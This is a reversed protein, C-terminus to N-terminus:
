KIKGPFSGKRGVDDGAAKGALSFLMNQGAFTIPVFCVIWFVAEPVSCIGPHSYVLGLVQLVAFGVALVARVPVSFFVEELFLARKWLSYLGFLLALPLIGMTYVSGQAYLLLFIRVACVLALFASIGALAFERASTGKGIREM